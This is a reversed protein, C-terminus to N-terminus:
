YNFAHFCYPDTEVLYPIDDYQDVCLSVASRKRENGRNFSSKIVPHPLVILEPIKVQTKVAVVEKNHVELNTKSTDVVNTENKKNSLRLAFNICLELKKAVYILITNSVDLKRM